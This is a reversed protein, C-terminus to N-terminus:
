ATCIIVDKENHIAATLSELVMADKDNPFFAQMYKIADNEGALGKKIGSVPHFSELIMEIGRFLTGSNKEYGSVQVISTFNPKGCAEAKNTKQMLNRTAYNTQLQVKM